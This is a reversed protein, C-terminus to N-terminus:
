HISMYKIQKELIQIDSTLLNLNSKTIQQLNNM